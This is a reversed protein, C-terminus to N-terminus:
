SKKKKQPTVKNQPTTKAAAPKEPEPDGPIMLDIEDHPRPIVHVSVVEGVKQGAAAGADVLSRDM